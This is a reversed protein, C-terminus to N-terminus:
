SKRRSLYDIAAQLRNIDDGFHGLGVNCSGCLLGRIQGTSHDHDVSFYEGKKMSDKPNKGKCISCLGGQETLLKKYDELTIGFLRRLQLDKIREKNQQYSKRGYEKLYEKNQERWLKQREQIKEKNKLRTRRSHEKVKDPNNKRWERNYETRQKRREEPTM